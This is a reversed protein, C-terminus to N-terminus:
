ELLIQLLGRANRINCANKSVEEKAGTFIKGEGAGHFKSSASWTARVSNVVLRLITAQTRRGCLAERPEASLLWHPENEVFYYTKTNVTRVNATIGKLPSRLKIDSFVPSKLVIRRQGSIKFYKEEQKIEM